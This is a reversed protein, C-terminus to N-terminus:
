IEHYEGWLSPIAGRNHQKKKWDPQKKSTDKTISSSKLLSFSHLPFRKKTMQPAEKPFYQQQYIGDPVFEEILLHCNTGGDPFSNQAALRKKGPEVKWDIVKRNLDIRSSSFDYYAFPEVASLFPPIQKHHVSLVCRIFGALGSTLLLHGINPKVSGIVCSALARNGLNYVESLAKIEISDVVPSGGGNVEIYGIEAPQKGSITLAEQMVQKQANMNPSGPGLTQGDNNEAIAKIVGYIQNGDKIADSLRKLLVVGAGEGLVEGDSRRDFIHFEGRKSLINRAAFLDHAYPSVLVSVAGVLGMDIRGERLSDCALLMGTIGSSCATDVVLSPGKFNFYRSINTALYNQGMGLIPNPAKLIDNINLNPQSRGGIYVGIKQGSLQKHEYGADYIARLSEELIIRGQPDMIAADQESINFFKPDFLDVDEIWGGYDQRNEQPSWREKPVPGIASVGKTLLEWYAEITPSGPFRCSLGVVAIEEASQVPRSVDASQNISVSSSNSHFAANVFPSSANDTSHSDEQLFMAAASNRKPKLSSQLDAAHNTLFYDALTGITSHELLLAPDLTPEVKAQLLQTLQILLISEVGYEYFPKDDDLQALTLKLEASFVQKLWQIVLTRLDVSSGTTVEPKQRLSQRVSQGSEKKEPINKLLHDPIFEGPVVVCPLSVIYPTKKSLIELFALGDATTLSVLGTEGYAPTRMGGTAMGTEGWAPWQISRFYTKGEGAQCLAYYDLYANAMAYDSQGSALSPAISSISSFLIFFELPEKSVAQHLTVLGKMKPECVAEFDQLAKKFFAPNKSVVGACHFVGTIPGWDQRIEQVMAEMGAEDTLATNYYRVRVGQDRLFQLRKIKEQREPQEQNGLSKQWESPEPLEERGMIILNKAGRSVLHEAIAAGIGKSGGTLLLVDNPSYSAPIALKQMEADRQVPTLGPEYRRKNRYCCETLQETNPNLFEGHIQARLTEPDQLLCDSDMTLSQIQKYEASLMRYLGAMRAGQLTTTAILFAHLQHTVQLLRYGEQRDQEILKQLFIIKGSEVATSHEYARDYATIDIVGLLPTGKQKDKLQQYLSEGASSSYFDTAIEAPLQPEGHIALLVQMTETDKFLSRALDATDPTGLVVIIGAPRAAQTDLNKEHWQKTLIVKETKVPSPDEVRVPNKYSAPKREPVWYREKAFPYTPLSIRRPKGAPYLKNWDFSLGKAWLDLLKGYKGRQVWKSIAEQLEEDATFVALTEKNRKAQGRYLDDINEQGDLYAQLKEQLEQLSVATIALREEMAERGVQLTYAIDALDIDSFPETQIATLLQQAQEKLREESKASLVIIALNEPSVATLAREQKPIYEEIVVHANAGGAGFSSIGAIRPYERTEGNMTVVPRKWEAFEQQVLFPTSTFDIHPNLTESHLSPVLQRHKLQLLVKTLGAIGAASECHGINSKASGIACYQKDKTYEQFAKTLGTIEIPDGLSTGTGHAEIYSILRPDLGAEKLAAGIVGAQANPNPVTYGNTKGGHNIATGKIVGYIQDGDAIAKELPKLLVAGVGEGPVYGDGGQGFSECRGKSSVFKGQSLLLYKNPHISVNVGGAIALECGGRQLSQCALHIATLSSSCMTDLAISPGHFNCFYSIRNAISSPSGALTIPYGQIQEQAGYLQYEEYMVGVYVGVNGELGFSKYTSLAERTYGADELTEYVCQLFLREQPDMIEAERPSINFFLPDFQDVGELFGGWKSYVTGPNDKNEDFYLKYDWREPPIETISDRGAKLNQWFEQINGAGPYRGSLGIIAIELVEQGKEEPIERRPATFRSKRSSLSRTTTEVVPFSESFNESVAAAKEKIGLLDIMKERYAELFYGTLAEINQYEFFITKSLSGFSKELQNILQMVMISDIGYNELPADGDIKNAPLQIVSSLMKKFYHVAKEQLLDYPIESVTKKVEINVVTKVKDTKYLHGLLATRIKKVDGEIIMVQDNGSALSRYLAQIGTSTQMPVIGINEWMIKETADDVYMGGEKWLPWNIAITQGQRANVKVLGNRYQAYADMFANATSYDAQGPNGLSGSTSSFLIFFDLPLAKSGQDLNVLGTVKPELVTHLEEPTKKLIFNDRIVGASHIIGQLSGFKEQIYQFLRSVAQQQSVDVEQYEVQAGLSELERHQAKKVDNLSSRGTLILTAGKVKHAIEKAFIQGLGGAGGTILYIGGDKWPHSATPELARVEKWRAVLRKGSEYRIQRDAPSQSNEKLIEVIRQEDGELQILQGMLKPNELQATKLIGALGSFLCQEGKSLSVIQILVNGKPKGQMLTKILIFIQTTYTRFRKDIEEEEATLIVCTGGNLNNEISKSSIQGAECLIVVQKEYTPIIHEQVAQEQWDPELILTGMSSATGLTGVEGELVRSSFGKMRVCVNGLEDCLDIDLKQVASGIHSSATYRIFAWMVSTCKNIIEIKELAFPLAPKLATNGGTSDALTLGISGQLASDLLSPHLVFQEQTDAISTPLCLKVLVQDVGVYIMEIGQHGLGYEIGMRKFAEYCQSSNIVGKTCQMQLGLLDLPQVEAIKSLVASGQSHLIREVDIADSESSIEFTIEENEELYLEIHVNAPQDGVAIPRAWIVNKLVIANLDENLEGAAEEVAARAMELYTVGPLVRQGKIVHDSLFFEQGTFKSSFQQKTFDSTNQQLLPHLVSIIGAAKGAENDIEPLWYREKAFPYTPLSVRCPKKDGYLRQWDFNLGKVWLDILKTYKRKSIWSDIIKNMEEDAAFVALAEKNRKVQDQYLDEIGEQGAVFATLKEELEKVSSVLVALRVEMAERGIQLTYAMDALRNETIQQSRIATLLRQVQVKLREENKASLLIIVPHQREIQISKEQEEAKPIYESVVVHANAGGAGFSSIGAIRPYERSKGDIEIVPRKWEALEQQVIFPTQGFRINPNLEQAHLSPVLQQHQMQLVIKSLGAIGAAAELHGVNSKASGIACFGTDQSDQSFAQTLGSIEVPDGLETGTGHAEIYSITRANVGAKDMAKRIMDGQATPNPVTYGNTKGGHNISTGQIVAYIHDCDEVAKSLPKLLVCGVGEGPVFGSGGRGFSKCQGDSSLMQQSCLEVYNLPHLYLNVGGAISMECEGRYLHECAEHIATLSASCMTDIPMSPGQLNLLYSIRNAMSAFSTRPFVKEGQKWLDPGYLEFGTKTIGVFVGIRRNFQETLQVKTYGADELVEWCSQIFLREQPDMKFAERPSINFFIPDFDAFGEIFGGWKSYSKGQSVAEQRDPNYFGELSWREAPIETICDKGTKLNEWYDKLTEAQPYRGSMGIIAIPEKCSDSSVAFSRNQKGAAKLSTLVPFDGDFVLTASSKEPASQVQDQLGTWQMCGQYYDAIFYDALAGLTQYEYFLTKSLEGFIGALKQNLQTILISDIGYNELAEDPDIKGVRLKTTEGFLVKLQHLTKERLLGTEQILDSQPKILSRDSQPNFSTTSLLKEKIQVPDGELVLIQGQKSALAQYFAQIGSETQMLAMGTNEQMMREAERDVSMGGEQWLPWNISLIRGRRQGSAMLSNCYLAYADMFANAAAYDAQGLSGMIGTTSSFFILFDLNLDRSAQDLYVLGAVKPALVSLFDKKTKKTIFSDKIMGAAHIIGTFKGFEQWIDQILGTIAAKDTVDVARYIIQVDSTELEKIKSQRDEELPFRGTLILTAAKVKHAIEKAFILGLGETGDTILYVGQEKWPIEMVEAAEMERWDAVFRKGDQYCVQQDLPSHINEKLQEIIIEKSQGPELSILQGIIRPNELQATKLLGLLGSCLSQENRSSVVLQILVKGKRKGKVISQMEEFIQAAYSQFREEIEQSSRLELCRVKNMRATISEPSINDSECLIVLHQAYDSNVAEPTVPQEKWSPQLMITELNASSRVDDLEDKPTRFTFAKMRVCIHGQDNCLDIDLKQLRSDTTSGGSPRIHAWMSSVCSRFVELEDLTFPLITQPSIKIPPTMDMKLAISAQLASDLLSPHLVFQEQTDAISAPLCLKALVQDIGVYVKEIVQHGLGNEIGMGKFVDYWQSSNIMGKTCQMQVGKLDLPQVDGVTSLVASGQSHLIQKANIEDSKSSIEYAIEGNDKLYLEIQAKVAQDGVAIPRAWIVNKLVIGNQDENLEGSAQEVAARAMELYAAGPLVRQGKIVHDSLFFEKGTFKSSFQQKTFDSTNRQLLPHLGSSIGAPNGAENDIETVWYREKTFPYTPLSIRRINIDAFLEKWNPNYGKVYLEALGITKNYYEQDNIGRDLHLAEMISHGIEEEFLPQEQKGVNSGKFYGETEGDKLIQKLKEQLESADRFVFASRIKFHERGMLLTASIDALQHKAGEEELWLALEQERLRLAEETKASLCILYCPRESSVSREVAPAEELVVHANTGGFGFSSVGARRPLIQKHEGELRKWDRLQNVIYFPSDQISIRPNLQKFNQLGPLQEYKMSLLVKIVGAVGAASELHGINSKASGLGCYNKMLEQRDKALSQFAKLIGQFEIPDGKPTGTGHAEIYSISESTIGAAKCADIIVNAQAEPNPYTLTHTKGNHNVASGKIIAYISDGDQIAESLPKLLILGAGESRVYGDASEDFSKCSGTPSMMGTKSFSIHRTPTLLLSIGGALAVSCEGAHLAQIALHIANLSSSCATDISVSPGKLNFYHSIRNAIVGSATGTSHYTEIERFVKEQLEKYDFNFVGVYVGMKEGSFHSPCIGADEFCAWSLELMIRQQPDMTEAERASLNFFGPDFADVDKIFGGWKSNSKNTEKLPDGWFDQWDWREPPIEQVHSLGQKLNKWFEEYNEAGPFRCAMGVIAIEGNQACSDNATAIKQENDIRKSDKEDCEKNDIASLITEKKSDRTFQPDESINLCENIINKNKAMFMEEVKM